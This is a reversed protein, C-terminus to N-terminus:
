NKNKFKFLTEEIKEEDMDALKCLAILTEVNVASETSQLKKTKKSTKKKERNSPQYFIFRQINNSLEDSIAFNYYFSSIDDENLNDDEKLSSNIVISEHFSEMMNKLEEWIEVIDEINSTTDDTLKFCLEEFVGIIHEPYLSIIEDRLANVIKFYTPRKLYTSKGNNFNIVEILYNFFCYFQQMGNSIDEWYCRDIDDDIGYTEEPLDNVHYKDFNAM